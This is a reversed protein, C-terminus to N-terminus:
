YRELRIRLRGKWKDWGYEVIIISFHCCTRGWERRTHGEAAGADEAGRGWQRGGEEGVFGGGSCVGMEGGIERGEIFEGDPYLAVTSGGKVWLVGSLFFGLFFLFSSQGSTSGIADAHAWSCQSGCLSRGNGNLPHDM